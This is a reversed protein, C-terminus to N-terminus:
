HQNAALYQDAYINTQTVIHRLLDDDVFLQFFDIPEMNDNQRVQTGSLGTFLPQDAPLDSASVTGNHHRFQQHLPIWLQALVM